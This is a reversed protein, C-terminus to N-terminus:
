RRLRLALWTAGLCAPAILLSLAVWGAPARAEMFSGTSEPSSAALAGLSASLALVSLTLGVVLAGLLWRADSRATAISKAEDM